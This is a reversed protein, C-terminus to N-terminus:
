GVKRQEPERVESLPSCQFWVITARDLRDEWSICCNDRDLVHASFAQRQNTRTLDQGGYTVGVPRQCNVRTTSFGRSTDWDYNSTQIRTTARLFQENM